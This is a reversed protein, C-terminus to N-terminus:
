HSPTLSVWTSPNLGTKFRVSLNTDSTVNGRKYDSGFKRDDVEELTVLPTPLSAISYYLRWFLFNTTMLIVYNSRPATGEDVLLRYYQLPM